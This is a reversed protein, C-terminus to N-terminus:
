TARYDLFTRKPKYSVPPTSWKSAEGYFLWSMKVEVYLKGDVWFQEFMYITKGQICRRPVVQCCCAGVRTSQSPGNM